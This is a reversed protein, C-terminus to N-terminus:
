NKKKNSYTFNENNDSRLEKIRKDILDFVDIKFWHIDKVEDWSDFVLFFKSCSLIIKGDEETVDFITGTRAYDYDRKYKYYWNSSWSKPNVTDVEGDYDYYITCDSKVKM